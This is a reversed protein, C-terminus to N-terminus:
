LNMLKKLLTSALNVGIMQSSWAFLNCSIHLAIAPLISHFLQFLFTCCFGLVLPGPSIFTSGSIIRDITPQSHLWSFSIVSFYSGWFPGVISSLSCSLGFRFVIEEVVPALFLITIAHDKLLISRYLHQWSYGNEYILFLTLLAILVCPLFQFIESWRIKKKPLFFIKESMILRKKAAVIVGISLLLNLIITFFQRSVPLYRSLAYSSALAVSAIMAIAGCGVLKLLADFKTYFTKKKM